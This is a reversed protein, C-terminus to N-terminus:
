KTVQMDCPPVAHALGVMLLTCGAQTGCDNFARGMTLTTLAVTAPDPDPDTLEPDHSGTDGHKLVPVPLGAPM